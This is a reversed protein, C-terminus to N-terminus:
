YTLCRGSFLIEQPGEPDQGGLGTGEQGQKIVFEGPKLKSRPELYSTIKRRAEVEWYDKTLEGWPPTFGQLHPSRVGLSSSKTVWEGISFM